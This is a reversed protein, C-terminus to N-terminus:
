RIMISGLDRGPVDETLLQRTQGGQTEQVQITYNRTPQNYASVAYILSHHADVSVFAPLDAPVEEVPYLLGGLLETRGGETTQIVVSPRETKIGLVWLETGVNELKIKNSREINLQRAWVGQTHDLQLNSCCVDELFLLGSGSTGRYGVHDGGGLIVHKIVLTRPSAHEIWIVGPAEANHRGFRFRELSVVQGSRGGEFRLLPRPQSPDRFSSGFSPAVFSELGLIRQVHPPVVLTDGVLYRGEGQAGASPFYVTSHGSDLAAQIAATDDRTDFPNAGGAYTSDTVSAWDDLDGGGTEPTEQIPLGLSTTPASSLNSTTFEGVAQGESGSIASRYGSTEVERVYLHGQNEIASAEPSGGRFDGEVLVVLGLPSVNQIVPVANRSTLKRISLVNRDNHIGAVRQDALVLHEFTLGYEPHATKVGYDFGEIRLNKILAPGPWKRTMSLGASGRGDGSRITVNIVGGNNNALFDIGVAGPNGAGTDISLDFIFNRFAENGEGKGPYDKGGADPNGRFLGSGTVVVARPRGPDGFGAAGDKLKIVTLERGQGQLTLFPQWAGKGDRWELPASVLYTGAPFFLIRSGGVNERIARRIAETDDTVGDGRAGYDDRVNVLGADAPFLVEPAPLSPLQTEEEPPPEPAEEATTPVTDALTQDPAQPLTTSDARSPARTCGAALLAVALVAPWVVNHPPGCNRKKQQTGVL